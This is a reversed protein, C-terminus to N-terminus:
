DDPRKHLNKTDVVTLPLCVADRKIWVQRKQGKVQNETSGRETFRYSCKLKLGAIIPYVFTGLVGLNGSRFWIILHPTLKLIHNYKWSKCDQTFSEPSMIIHIMRGVHEAICEILSVKLQRINGRTLSMDTKGMWQRHIIFRFCSIM